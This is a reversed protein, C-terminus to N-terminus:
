NVGKRLITVKANTVLLLDSVKIHILLGKKGGNIYVNEHKILNDDITIPYKKSMGLISCGGSYYGTKKYLLENDLFHLQKVDVAKAAKKLDLHQDVGLLFVFIKGEGECVLTKFLVDYPIQLYEAVDIGSVVNGKTYDIIQYNIHLNDLFRMANTKM